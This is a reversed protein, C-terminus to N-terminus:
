RGMGPHRSHGQVVWVSHLCGFRQERRPLDRLGGVSRLETGTRPSISYTTGQNCVISLASTRTSNDSTGSWDMDTVPSVSLNCTNTLTGQITLDATTDAAFAPVALSALAIPLLARFFTKRTM